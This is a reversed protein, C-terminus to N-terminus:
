RRPIMVAHSTYSVTSTGITGITDVTKVSIGLLRVAM